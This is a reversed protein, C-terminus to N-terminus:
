ETIQDEVTVQSTAQAGQKPRTRAPSELIEWQRIEERGSGKREEREGKKGGDKQGDM